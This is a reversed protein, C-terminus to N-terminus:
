QFLKHNSFLLIYFSIHSVQEKARSMPQKRKQSIKVSLVVVNVDHLQTKVRITKMRSWTKERCYCSVCTSSFSGNALLLPSFPAASNERRRNAGKARFDCLLAGRTHENKRWTEDGQQWVVSLAAARDGRGAAGNSKQMEVRFKGKKKMIKNMKRALWLSGAATQKGICICRTPALQKKRRPKALGRRM